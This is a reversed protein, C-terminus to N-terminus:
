GSWTVFGWLPFVVLIPKEAPVEIYAAHQDSRIVTGKMRPVVEFESGVKPIKSVKEEPWKLLKLTVELVKLYNGKEGADRCFRKAKRWAKEVEAPERKLLAALNKATYSPNM